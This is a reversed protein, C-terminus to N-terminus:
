PRHRVLAKYFVVLYLRVDQYIIVRCGDKSSFVLLEFGGDLFHEFFDAVLLQGCLVVSRLLGYYFPPSWFTKVFKSTVGKKHRSVKKISITLIQDKRDIIVRFISIKIVM